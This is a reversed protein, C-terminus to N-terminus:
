PRAYSRPILLSTRLRIQQHVDCGHEALWDSLSGSENAVALAALMWSRNTGSMRDLKAPPIAALVPFRELMGRRTVKRSVTGAEYEALMTQLPVGATLHVIAALLGTRDKGTSCHIVAPLNAPNSLIRIGRAFEDAMTRMLEIYLVAMPDPHDLVAQQRVNDASTPFPPGVPSALHEWRVPMRDDPFTGHQALEEHSRLDIVTRIGLARLTDLGRDTLGELSASGFIRGAALAHGSSTIVGGLDRFNFTGEVDHRRSTEIRKEHDGSIVSLNASRRSSADARGAIGASAIM